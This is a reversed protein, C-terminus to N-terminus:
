YEKVVFEDGRIGLLVMDAQGQGRENIKHSFLVGEFEKNATFYAKITEKKLDGEQTLIRDLIKVIEYSYIAASPATDLNYAKKYKSLFDSYADQHHPYANTFVYANDTNTGMYTIYDPSFGWASSYIPLNVGQRRLVQTFLGCNKGTSVMIIADCEESIVADLIETQLEENYMNMSTIQNPIRSIIAESLVKSYAQNQEDYILMVRKYGLQEMLGAFQEGQNDTTNIFRFVYDDEYVADDYTASPVFDLLSMERFYPYYSILESSLFPGIIITDELDVLKNRLEEESIYQSTDLIDIEYSESAAEGLAIEIGRYGAMAYERGVGEFDGMVTIQIPQTGCGTLIFLFLGIIMCKKM